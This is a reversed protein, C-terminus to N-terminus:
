LSELNDAMDKARDDMDQLVDPLSLHSLDGYDSGAHTTDHSLFPQTPTRSKELLKRVHDIDNQFNSNTEILEAHAEQAANASAQVSSLLQDVGSEDVFDLLSKRQDTEPRLSTEVMTTRLHNLTDNLRQDAEEVTRLVERYEEAGELEVAKSHEHVYDLTRLQSTIAAQIFSTRSCTIVSTELHARALTVIENARYVHEISSLSRKSAVLHSVLSDLSSLVPAVIDNAAPPSPSDM